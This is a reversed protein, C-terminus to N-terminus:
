TGPTHGPEHKEEAAQRQVGLGRAEGLSDWPPSFFPSQRPQFAPCGFRIGPFESRLPLVKQEGTQHTPGGSKM